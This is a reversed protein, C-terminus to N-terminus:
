DIISQGTEHVYTHEAPYSDSLVMNLQELLLAFKKDRKLSQDRHLSANMDGLLLVRSDISYKIVIERVKDLIENFM